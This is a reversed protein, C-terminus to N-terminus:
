ILATVSSFDWQGENAGNISGNIMAQFAVVGVDNLNYGLGFNSFTGNGDASIQGERAIQTIAGGNGRFIGMENSGGNTETITASFATSGSNNLVPSDFIRFEGNGDPAAQGGRVIQTVAGANGVFIGNNDIQGGSTGTLQASFAVSGSANLDRVRRLISYTGNGDPATQGKRVIQLISGDNKSFFAM